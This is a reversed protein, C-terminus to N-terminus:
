SVISPTSVAVQMRGKLPIRVLLLVSLLICVAGFIFL